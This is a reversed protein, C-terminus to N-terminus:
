PSSTQYVDVDDIGLDGVGSEGTNFAVGDIKGVPVILPKNEVTATQSGDFYLSFKGTRAGAVLRVSYWHNAVLGSTIM